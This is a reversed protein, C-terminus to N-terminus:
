NLVSKILSILDMPTLPTRSKLAAQRHIDVALQSGRFGSRGQAIQSAILGSLIDGSGAIALAPSNWTTVFTPSGAQAILTDYGKSVITGSISQSIFLTDQWKNKIPRPSLMSQLEGFHPTLVDQPRQYNAWQKLLTPNLAGGDLVFSAKHQWIKPSWQSDKPWGSGLVFCRTRQDALILQSLSDPDSYPSFVIEPYTVRQWACIDEPCFIQVYSAGSSLAALGALLAAGPFASSQVISVPGHSYKNGTKVLPALFESPSFQPLGLCTPKMGAVEDEIPDVPVRVLDGVFNFGPALYLGRKHFGVSLTLDSQFCRPTHLQGTNADLGTPIDIAIRWASQGNCWDILQQTSLDLDRDLGVGFLADVLIDYPDQPPHNLWSLPNITGMFQEREPGSPSQPSPIQYFSVSFGHQILEQGLSLGDDGNHGPGVLILIKQEAQLRPMLVQALQRGVQRILDITSISSSLSKDISAVEDRSLLIQDPSNAHM